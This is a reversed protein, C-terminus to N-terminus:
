SSWTSVISSVSALSAIIAARECLHPFHHVQKSESRISRDRADNKVSSDICIPNCDAQYHVITQMPYFMRISISPLEAETVVSSITPGPEFPYCVPSRRVSLMRIALGADTQDTPHYIMMLCTQMEPESMIFRRRRNSLPTMTVALPLSDQRLRCLFM